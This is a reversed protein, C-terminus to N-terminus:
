KKHFNRLTAYDSNLNIRDQFFGLNKDKEADRLRVGFKECM